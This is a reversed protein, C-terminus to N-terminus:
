SSGVGLGIGSDAAYFDDLLLRAVSKWATTLKSTALKPARGALETAFM